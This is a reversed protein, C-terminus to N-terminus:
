KRALIEARLRQADQDSPEIALAADLENLADALSGATMLARALEVRVAISNKTPGFVNLGDRAIRIADSTRGAGLMIQVAAQYLNPNTLPDLVLAREVSRAAESYDKLYQRIVARTFQARPNNPDVQVARDGLDRLRPAASTDGGIAVAIEAAALDSVYDIDYPALASARRFAVAADRWSSRAVHALGLTDWYAARNADSRTAQLGLELAQSVNGILRAQQSARASRSADYATAASLAALIGALLFAAAMTAQRRSHRSATVRGSPPVAAISSGVLGVAFWFLWESGFESATTLGTGLFAGLMSVGVVSRTRLGARLAMVFAVLAISVFAGLGILGSSTAVYGIWSHASTALSQQITPVAREPRYRPVGVVFNDPGYGLFPRERVEDVAIKYLDVRGATSPELRALVDGGEVQPPEITSVIRAGVGTEVLLAGILAIAAVGAVSAVARARGSALGRWVIVLLTLGGAALGIVASRTGTTISGFLLVVSYAFLLGRTSRHLGDASLGLAFVGVALVTLYQALATAQGLTSFPRDVNGISWTFPDAGLRQVAEYILIPISASIVSVAIARADRRTRPLLVLGFYLVAFDLVSSLGLMRTHTGYLGIVSNAAFLGSIASIVVFASVPLHLPSSVLLPRGFRVFLAIMTAALVCALAHSLLAKPVVFPMDLSPDFVIPVLFVKL